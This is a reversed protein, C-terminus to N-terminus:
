CEADLCARVATLLRCADFPKALFEGKDPPLNREAFEQNYGSMYIVRLASKQRTLQEALKKGTLQDPMVVDTLLLDIELRHDVWLQLAQAGNEASHVRYGSQLLVAEMTHRVDPDDEVLLISETGGVPRAAAQDCIVASAQDAACPLYVDFRAGCGVESKVDIWGQHQRVIGYVTALGLGTGKGEEKTTFFPEFIKPMIDPHIGTGTDSVSLRAYVGPRVDPQRRLTEATCEVRECAITVQGGDPMADRANVALNLLVQDLMGSDACVFVPGASRQVEIKVQEGVIRRLMKVMERVAEGLDLIRTQMAQRRSFMLLQRTLNSARDAAAAIQGISASIAPTVRGTVELLGVHGKIVALINNFDHAVGGSLQGIADMKQAQRFQEELQKRATIDQVIAIFFDPIGAVAWIASVTLTVWVISGDKRLYRKEWSHERIMGAKLRRLTELSLGLDEPHTLVAFPLNQLEERSYGVIECFRRNFEVFRGTVVETRAVGVAAQEFFAKFRRESEGLAQEARIRATVDMFTVIVEAVEGEPTPVPNASVLVWVVGARDPRNFGLIVDRVPQRTARARHAPLDEPPIASGDLGFRSWLPDTSVRGLMQAETVGLIEVAKTNFATIRLAADHVIVGADVGQLMSHYRAGSTPAALEAPLGTDPSIM